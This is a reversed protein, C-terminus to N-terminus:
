RKGCVDLGLRAALRSSRADDAAAQAVATRLRAASQVRSLAEVDVAVRRDSALWADFARTDEQPPKLSDLQQLSDRYIPLVHQAYSRIQPLTRPRGLRAVRTNYSACVTDAKVLLQQHTLPSSGCGAVLLLSAASVLALGRM